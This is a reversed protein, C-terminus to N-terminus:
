PATTWHYEIVLENQGTLPVILEKLEGSERITAPQSLQLRIKKELLFGTEDAALDKSAAVAVM